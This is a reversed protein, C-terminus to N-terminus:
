SPIRRSSPAARYEPCTVTRKPITTSIIKSATRRKQPPRMQTLCSRSAPGCSNRTVTAALLAVLEDGAEAEGGSEGGDLTGVRLPDFGSSDKKVWLGQLDPHGDPLRPPEFVPPKEAPAQAAVPAVVCSVVALVCASIVRVNGPSM